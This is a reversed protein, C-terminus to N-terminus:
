LMTELGNALCEWSKVGCEIDSVVRSDYERAIQWPVDCFSTLPSSMCAIEFVNRLHKLRALFENDSMKILGSKVTHLHKFAGYAFAIANCNYAKLLSKYPFQRTSAFEYARVQKNVTTARFLQDVSNIVQDSTQLFTSNLDAAPLPNLPPVHRTAASLLASGASSIAPDARLHDITLGSYSYGNSQGLGNQVSAALGALLQM